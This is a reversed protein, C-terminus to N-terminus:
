PIVTVAKVGEDFKGILLPSEITKFNM